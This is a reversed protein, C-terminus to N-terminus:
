KSGLARMANLIALLAVGVDAFVAMWMSAFGFLGLLMVAFKVILVVGINEKAILRTRKAIDIAEGIKSLEDNMLILDAADIAVDAGVAGMAIGIDAQILSPADNIGDGVFAVRGTAASQIADLADLKDRPLLEAKFTDIGLAESVRRVNDTTDGSLLVLEIGQAKLAALDDYAHPKVRDAVVVCGLYQTGRAVHVAVGGPPTEAVDIGSQTLLKKSGVLVTDGHYDYSMGLGAIEKVRSVGDAVGECAKAIARAVPHNSRSEGMAAFRLTEDGLVDTVEFNGQTLTGTKDFIITNIAHLGELVNGGKVFIGRKSAHGIGAFMTLPVSIVLACPCSIVLFTAARVLGERFTFLGLSSPVVAILAALVVVSPTYVKAFRTIYYEIRSKKEAAYEVLDIMRAITSQEYVKTVTMIIADTTNIFGSLVEDGENIHRPLSEGSLMSTDMATAGEVVVGDVPVKEGPKILLRDGVCLRQPLVVDYGTETIRTASTIKLALARGIHKRSNAVARDQFYEGFNYFLMVGVAESYAGLYVASLSAIVMLLNEDFIDGRRITAFARRFVEWSTTIYLLFYVPVRYPHLWFTNIVFLILLLIMAYLESYDPREEVEYLTEIEGTVVGPEIADVIAKIENFLSMSGETGEVTLIENAFNFHASDVGDLKSVADEIKRTCNACTLGKLQLQYSTM